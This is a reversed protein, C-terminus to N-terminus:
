KIYKALFGEYKPDAIKAKLENSLARNIGTANSETTGTSLPREGIYEWDDNIAAFILSTATDSSSYTDLTTLTKNGEVFTIVKVTAPSLPTSAQKDYLALLTDISTYTETITSKKVCSVNLSAARSNMKPLTLIQCIANEGEFVTYVATSAAPKEIEDLKYKTLFTKVGEVAATDNDNKNADKREYQVFDSGTQTFTYSNPRSYNIDNLGGIPSKTEVYLDSVTDIANPEKLKKIIEEPSATAAEPTTNISDRPVLINLLVVTLAGVLIIGLVIGIILKFNTKPKM